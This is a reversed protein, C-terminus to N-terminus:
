KQYRKMKEKKERKRVVKLRVWSFFTLPNFFVDTFWLNGLLPRKDFLEKLVNLEIKSYSQYKLFDTEYM